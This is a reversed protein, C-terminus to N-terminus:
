KKAKQKFTEYANDGKGLSKHGEICNNKQLVM